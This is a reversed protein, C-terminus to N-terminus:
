DNTRAKRGVSVLQINRAKILLKFLNDKAKEEEEDTRDYDGWLYENWAEDADKRWNGETM